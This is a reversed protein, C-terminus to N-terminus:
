AYLITTKSFKIVSTLIIAINRDAIMRPLQNEDSAFFLLRLPSGAKAGYREGGPNIIAPMIRNSGIIAQHSRCQFNLIKM